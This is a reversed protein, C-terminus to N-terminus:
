GGADVRLLRDARARADRYDEVESLLDLLVALARGPQGVAELTEALDYLVPRRSAADAVPAQAAEDYWRVAEVLQGRSRHLEGLATAAEFRTRVDRSAREYARAAEAALGAAAFVRGAALQRAALGRADGESGADVTAEAMALEEPSPPRPAGDDLAPWEPVTREALAAPPADVVPVNLPPLVPLGDPRLQDLLETLDIEETPSPVARAADDTTGGDAREPALPPAVREPVTVDPATPLPATNQAPLEVPSPGEDFLREEIDRGLLAGWDFAGSPSPDSQQVLPVAEVSRLAPAQTSAETAEDTEDSSLWSLDAPAVPEPDTEVDRNPEPEVGPDPPTEAQFELAEAPGSEQGCEPEPRPASAPDPGLELPQAPAPEPDPEAEPAPEDSAEPASAPQPVPAAVPMPPMPPVPSALPAPPAPAHAPSGSPAYRTRRDDADLADLRASVELAGDHDGRQQRVALLQALAQRADARLKLELSVDALKGLAHDSAADLKLVKRYLAAARALFGEEFYHDACQLFRVAAAAPNGAREHLDALQKIVTWDAPLQLALREYAAIAADLRGQRALSDAERQLEDRTGEAM